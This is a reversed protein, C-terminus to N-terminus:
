VFSHVGIDKFYTLFMFANEDEDETTVMRMAEDISKGQFRVPIISILSRANCGYFSSTDPQNTDTCYKDFCDYIEELSIQEGRSNLYGSLGKQKVIRRRRKKYANSTEDHIKNFKRKLGDVDTSTVSPSASALGSAVETTSAM